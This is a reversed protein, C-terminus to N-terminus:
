TANFRFQSSMESMIQSVTKGEELYLKKIYGKYKEWDKSNTKHQTRTRPRRTQSPRGESESKLQSGSPQHYQLINAFNPAKSSPSDSQLRMTSSSAAVSPFSTYVMQSPPTPAFLPVTPVLVSSVQQEYHTFTNSDPRFAQGDSHPWSGVQNFAQQNWQEPPDNFADQSNM